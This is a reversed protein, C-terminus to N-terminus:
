SLSGYGFGMQTSLPSKLPTSFWHSRPWRPAIRLVQQGAKRIRDLTASILPDSPIGQVAQGSCHEPDRPPTCM